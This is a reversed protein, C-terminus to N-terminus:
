QAVLRYFAVPLSANVFVTKVDGDGSVRSYAFEGNETAAFPVVSWGSGPRDTAVVHYTMGSVSVFRLRFRGNPLRQHDEIAFVDSALFPFTGARYEDYNSMGDGDFDDEGGIQNINTIAGGSQNMMLTEWADPLGDGDADEATSLDIRTKSGPKGALISAGGVLPQEVGGVRVSFEVPDGIHVAYPAFVPGGSDLEIELRYNSGASVLGRIQMRDLENTGSHLLIEACDLYPYGYENRLMGHCVAAPMPVGARAAALMGFAALCALQQKPKM